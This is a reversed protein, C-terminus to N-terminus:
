PISFVNRSITHPGRGACLGAGGGDMAFRTSLSRLRRATTSTRPSTPREGRICYWASESASCNSRTWRTPNETTLAADGGDLCRGVDLLYAPPPDAAAAERERM